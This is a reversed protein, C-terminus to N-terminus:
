VLEQQIWDAAQPIMANAADGGLFCVCSERESRRVAAIASTAASPTSSATSDRTSAAASSVCRTTSGKKRSQYLRDQPGRQLVHDDLRTVSLDADNRTVRPWTGGDESPAPMSRPGRRTRARTFWRRGFPRKSAIAAARMSKRTGTSAAGDEPVRRVAHPGLDRPQLQGAPAQRPGALFSRGRNDADQMTLVYDIARDIRHGYPAKGASPRAVSVGDRM